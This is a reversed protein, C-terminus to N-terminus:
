RMIEENERDKRKEEDRWECRGKGEKKERERPAGEMEDEGWM